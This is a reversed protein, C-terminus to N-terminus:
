TTLMLAVMASWGSGPVGATSVASVLAPSAAAALDSAMSYADLPMRTLATEGPTMSVARCGAPAALSPSRGGSPRRPWTLSMTSLM